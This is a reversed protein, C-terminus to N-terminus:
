DKTFLRATWRGPHSRLSLAPAPAGDSPRIIPRDSKAKGRFSVEGAAHATPPPEAEITHRGAGSPRTALWAVLGSAVTALGGLVIWWWVIPTPPAPVEIAFEMSNNAVDADTQGPPQNIRLSVAYRGPSGIRHLPLRITYDGPPMPPVDTSVTGWAMSDAVLTTNLSTAGTVSVFAVIESDDARSYHFAADSLKLDLSPAPSPRPEPSPEPTSPGPPTSSEFEVDDVALGSPVLGSQPVVEISRIRPEPFAIEIPQTVPTPGDSSALSIARRDINQGADDKAVLVITGADHRASYGVWVKVRSQLTTFTAAIPQDCFEIGYCQTIARTGSHAFGPISLGKSYDMAFVRNFSVGQSTYQADLIVQGGEGVGGTAVDEFDIVTVKSQSATTENVPPPAQTVLAAAAVIAFWTGAV